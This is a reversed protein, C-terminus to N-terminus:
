KNVSINFILYDTCNFKCQRQARRMQKVMEVFEEMDLGEISSRYDIIEGM